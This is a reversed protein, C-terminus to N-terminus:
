DLSGRATRLKALRASFDDRRRQHEEVVEKPAREIFSSNALKAETAKLEAELKAIEKDLRDREAARDTEGVILFLEGLKTPALSSRSPPQFNADIELTEANLLRAMTASEEKAWSESSRLAFKAKQNSPVRAEARLNRGAEVMEYIAGARTRATAQVSEDFAMAQPLPAFDLFENEGKAFGMLSWLEETLHPMFPHLLRIIASLIYDMTALTSQKRARDEGFIDTKGAEVFWDCFDGWVFNYLQQAVANFQYDRYAAEVAGITESLRVLAEIVYISLDSEKLEPNPNSPGHM